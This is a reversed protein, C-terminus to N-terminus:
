QAGADALRNMLRELRARQDRQLGRTASVQCVRSRWYTQGFLSNAGEASLVRELHRIAADVNGPTYPSTIAAHRQHRELTENM